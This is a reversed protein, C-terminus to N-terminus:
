LSIGNAKEVVKAIIIALVAIAAAVLVATVVVAETSYGREDHRLRELGARIRAVLIQVETFM